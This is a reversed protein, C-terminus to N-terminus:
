HQRSSLLANLEEKCHALVKDMNAEYRAMMATREEAHQKLLSPITKSIMHFAAWIAFGVSGIAQLIQTINIGEM